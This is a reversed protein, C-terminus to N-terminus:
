KVVLFQRGFFQLGILFNPSFIILYQSNESDCIKLDFKTLVFKLIIVSFFDDRYIFIKTVNM